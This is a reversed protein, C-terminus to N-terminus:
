DHVTRKGYKNVQDDGNRTMREFSSNDLLHCDMLFLVTTIVPQDDGCGSLISQTDTM